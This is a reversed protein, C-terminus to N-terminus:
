GHIWARLEPQEALFSGPALRRLPSFGELRDNGAERQDNDVLRGARRLHELYQGREVGYFCRVEWGPHLLSTVVVRHRGSRLAEHLGEYMTRRTRAWLELEAGGREWPRSRALTRWARLRARPELEPFADAVAAYIWHDGDFVAGPHREALTSKGLGSLAFLLM